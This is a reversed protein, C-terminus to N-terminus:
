DASEPACQEVNRESTAFKHTKILEGYIRWRDSNSQWYGNHRGYSVGSLRATDNQKEQKM